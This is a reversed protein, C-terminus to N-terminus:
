TFRKRLLAISFVATNICRLVGCILKGVNPISSYINMKYSMKKTPPEFHHDYSIDIHAPYAANDEFQKFNGETMPKGVEPLAPPVM